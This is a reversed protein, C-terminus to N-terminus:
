PLRPIIANRPLTRVVHLFFFRRVSVVAPPPWQRTTIASSSITIIVIVNHLYTPFSEVQVPSRPTLQLLSIVLFSDRALARAHLGASLIHVFTVAAAHRYPFSPRRRRGLINRIADRPLAAAAAASCYVLVMQISAPWTRLDDTPRAAATAAAAQSAPLGVVVVVCASRM